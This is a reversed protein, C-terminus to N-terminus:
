PLKVGALECMKVYDGERHYFATPDLCNGGVNMGLNVKSMTETGASTKWLGETGLITNFYNQMNRAAKVRLDGNAQEKALLGTCLEKAFNAPMSFSKLTNVMDVTVSDLNIQTNSGSVVGDSGELVVTGDAVDILKGSGVKDNLVKTGRIFAAATRYIYWDNLIYCKYCTVDASGAIKNILKTMNTKANSFESRADTRNADAAADNTGFKTKTYPGPGDVGDPPWSANTGLGAIINNLYMSANSVDSHGKIWNAAAESITCKKDNQNLPDGVPLNSQAKVTCKLIAAFPEQGPGCYKVEPPLPTPSVQAWVAGESLLLILLAGM